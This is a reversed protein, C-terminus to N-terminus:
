GYFATVADIIYQVQDDTLEPYLPLMIANRMVEETRPLNQPLIGLAEFQHVGKGGWPLATGIGQTYLYKKLEDRREAEIEYNQFVDYHDGGETAPPLRLAELASLGQFYQRAIQRRRQIWEKLYHVLKYDLIAAHLTDMRANLGWLQVEGGPGGRGHDRLLKLKMSLKEDDTVVAGADGFAGLLKAPYFSFCGAKGFTGAGKGQYTAGLAQASDEIIVLQYKEALEVLKEMGDCVRGNLQVPIIAKTRSTIAKEVLNVDLLHDEGIDVFVPKAGLFVIVEVTAVFTHSVTIVEDGSKLGVAQLALLLADTCNAVAVAYKAGVFEALNAEFRAVNEGLIYAGQLLIGTIVDQYEREHIKYQMPYDFFPVQM